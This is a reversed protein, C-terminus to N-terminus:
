STGIITVPFGGGILTCFGSVKKVCPFTAPISLGLVWRGIEIRYERYIRTAPNIIFSGPVPPGVTIWTVKNCDCDVKTLVKGGFPKRGTAAVQTQTPSFPIFFLGSLILLIISVGIIKRRYVAM